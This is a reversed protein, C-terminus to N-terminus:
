KLPLKTSIPIGGIALVIRSIFLVHHSCPFISRIRLEIQWIQSRSHTQIIKLNEARKEGKQVKGCM